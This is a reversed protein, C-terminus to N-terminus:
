STSMHCEYELRWTNLLCWKMDQHCKEGKLQAKNLSSSIHLILIFNKWSKSQSEVHTAAAEYICVSCQNQPGQSHAETNQSHKVNFLLKKFM